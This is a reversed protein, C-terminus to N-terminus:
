FVVKDGVMIDKLWYQKAAFNHTDSLNFEVAPTPTIGLSDPNAFNYICANPYAAILADLPLPNNSDPGYGSHLLTAGNLLLPKGGSRAWRIASPTASYSVYGDADATAPPPAMDGASTILNLWNNGDCTLSVTYTVYADVLTTTSADLKMRFSLGPFESLKVGHLFSLGYVAKNGTGGSNHGATAGVASGAHAQVEIVDTGSETSIVTRADNDSFDTSCAPLDAGTRSCDADKWTTAPAPAPAPAQAPPSAPAPAPAPISSGGGCGTLAMTTVFISSALFKM